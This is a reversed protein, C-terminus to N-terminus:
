LTLPADRLSALLADRRLLLDRACAGSLWRLAWCRARWELALRAGGGAAEAAEAATVTALTEVEEKFHVDCICAFYGCFINNYYSDRPPASAARAAPDRISSSKSERSRWQSYATTFYFVFYIGSNLNSFFFQVISITHFMYIVCRLATAVSSTAPQHLGAPSRHRHPRARRPRPQPRRRAARRTGAGTRAGRLASRVLVVSLIEMDYLQQPGRGCVM